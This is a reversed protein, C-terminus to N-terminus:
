NRERCTEIVQEVSTVHGEISFHKRVYLSANKKVDQIFDQEEVVRRIVDTLTEPKMDKLLFGTRGHEIIEELGGCALALVPTRVAMAEVAVRGFSEVKSPVVLSDLGHLASVLDTQYEMLILSDELGNKRRFRRIEKEYRSDEGGGILVLKLRPIIEILRPLVRVVEMQGKGPYLKGVIGLLFDNEEAGTRKRFDAAGRPDPDSFEFGNPIVHVNPQGAFARATTESNTIVACSLDKMWGTVRKGKLLSVLHANPGSLIEHIAWIHPLSLRKAALAGCFSAASNSYILRCNHELAYKVIVNVAKRNWLAALPQKWVNKRTTMSWKMPATFTACHLAEAEERLPGDEPLVLSPTFRRRDLHRLLSLLMREAGNLEASHSIFLLGTTKM